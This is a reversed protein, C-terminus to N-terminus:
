FSLVTPAKLVFTEVMKQLICFESINSNNKYTTTANVTILINSKNVFYVRSYVQGLDIDKRELEIYKAENDDFFVTGTDLVEVENDIEPFSSNFNENLSYLTKSFSVSFAKFEKSTTDDFSTFNPLERIAWNAPYSVNFEKSNFLKMNERCNVSVTESSKCGVLFLTIISINAIIKM